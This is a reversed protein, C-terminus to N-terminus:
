TNDMCLIPGGHEPTLPIDGKPGQDTDFTGSSISFM